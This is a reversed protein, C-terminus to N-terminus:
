RVCRVYMPMTKKQDSYGMAAVFNVAYAADPTIRLTTGTWFKNKGATPFFDEDISANPLTYDMLTMIERSHPLRWDAEGVLNLAECYELAEEWTREQGDDQQQWMLGTSLDFVTGDDNDKLKGFELYDGRVCRFSALQETKDWGAGASCTSFSIAYALDSDWPYDTGTWIADPTGVFHQTPICGLNEVHMISLLENRTAIRWGDGPLQDNNQECHDAAEQWGVKPPQELCDPPTQGGACRAWVLGTNLDTVTGDQNDMLSFPPGQYNADQGFFPEEPLPCVTEGTADYCKTQGSDPIEVPAACAGGYCFMSEGCEGCSGGCGDDGCEKGDCVPKCCESSTVLVQIDKEESNGYTTHGAVIFQGGPLVAFDTSVNSHEDGFATEWLQNGMGDLRLLWFDHSGAGMSTTNGQVIFGGDAMEVVGHPADGMGGIAKQWVENGSSDTRIIQPGSPSSGIIAFGGDKLAAVGSGNDTGDTGYTKNWVMNGASDVKVLWMDKDGAGFSKTGGVAVFGGDATEVVGSLPWDEEPGGYPNMWLLEGEETVRCLWFDWSGEAETTTVGALVYGGDKCAELVFIEDYGEGGYTEEWIVEGQASIRLLWADVGAAGNSMTYGGALIGDEVAVVSNLTDLSDGGFTKSWNLSGDLAFQALFGDKDNDSVHGSVYYYDGSRVTGGGFEIGPKEFTHSWEILGPAEPEECVCQGWGCQFGENCSGCTGGCEDDGCEKGDCSPVCCIEDEPTGAWNAGHVVGDNNGTSDHAVDGQGESFRWVGVLGSEAEVDLEEKSHSVIENLALSRSWLRVQGMSGSFHSDSWITPYGFGFTLPQTNTKVSGPYALSAYQEGDLYTHINGPTFTAAFHHWVGPEIAETGNAVYAAKDGGAVFSGCALTMDSMLWVLYNAVGAGKRVLSRSSTTTEAKFWIEVTFEDEFSLEDSHPVEVYDDEGDFFLAGCGSELCSGADCALGEECEGCIGECGDDGCEKGSCNPLCEEVGCVGENCVPKDAPCEGCMGGCGDDGCEMGECAPQCVCEGDVCVGSDCPESNPTGVCGENPDCSDDTCPNGDDCDLLETGLVCEGASCYAGAHCKDETGCENTDDNMWEAKSVATTCEMCPSGEKPQGDKYCVGDILCHGVMLDHVCEGAVDCSDETCDRSDDCSIPEGICEGDGDCKDNETCPDEDDCEEGSSCSTEMEPTSSSEGCSQLAMISLIGALLICSALNFIRTM